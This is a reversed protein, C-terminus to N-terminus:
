RVWHGPSEGGLVSFEAILHSQDTYRFEAALRAWSQEPRERAQRLAARFRVTRAFTKTPLGVHRQFLRSLHQRTVGAYSSFEEIRVIGRRQEIRAVVAGVYPDIQITRRALRKRLADQVCTCQAELSRQDNVRHELEAAFDRDFNFLGEQRDTLDRADLDFLATMAGPKFRVGLSHTPESSPVVLPRTMAGVVSASLGSSSVGQLLIDICGDPLV